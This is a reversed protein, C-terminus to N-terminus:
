LHKGFPTSILAREAFNMVKFGIRLSLWTNSTERSKPSMGLSSSRTISPLKIPLFSVAAVSKGRPNMTFFANVVWRAIEHPPIMGHNGNSPTQFRRRFGKSLLFRVRLYDARGHSGFALPRLDKRTRGPNRLRFRGMNRVGHPFCLRKRIKPNM